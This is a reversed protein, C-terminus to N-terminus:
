NNKEITELITMKWVFLTKWIIWYILILLILLVLLIKKKKEFDFLNEPIQIDITDYDEAGLNGDGLEIIWDVSEKVKPNISTSLGIELRMNKNLKLVKSHAWLKSPNSNALADEWKTRLYRCVNSFIIVELYVLIEVLPSTM